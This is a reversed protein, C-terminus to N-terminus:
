ITHAQRKFRRGLALFGVLGAALPVFASPEPTATTATTQLATAGLILSTDGNSTITISDLTQGAFSPNLFFGAETLDYYNYAGNTSNGTGGAGVDQVILVSQDYLNNTPSGNVASANNIGGSGAGGNFDPLFVNSFTESSSSGNFTVNFSTGFYASALLYVSSVGTLDVPITLTQGGTLQEFDQGTSNSTLDFDIGNNVLATGSLVLDPATYTTPDYLYSSNPQGVGSGPVGVGTNPFQQNLDTFINNDKAFNTLYVETAMAQGVFVGFAVLSGTFLKLV